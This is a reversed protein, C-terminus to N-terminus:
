KIAGKWLLREDSHPDNVIKCTDNFEMTARTDVNYEPWSPLGKHNPDGHRAFAIWADQINNALEVPPPGKGLWGEALPHAVWNFVFSLELAHYSGMDGTRSEWSFLYMYTKPQAKGQAEAHHIAPIRFLYDTQVSSYIEQPTAKPRNTEYVEFGEDALGPNKAVTAVARERDFDQLGMQKFVMKTWFRYEHKNTGVLLPVDKCDGARLSELIPKILVKDDIVPGFPSIKNSGGRITGQAELIKAVPLERLDELTSTRSVEMFNKAVEAAETIEMEFGLPGSQNVAKHFLGKAGPMAMLAAVAVGGASEGFLTVNDPDGGFHTINEKVWKLAAIQDLFGNNGSSSYNEDLAGLYLFGLVGLRYNITVVVVDGRLVLSSPNTSSGSGNTHGGGHIWVMVPRKANDAKPTYVNLYLCDESQIEPKTRGGLSSAAAEAQPAIGGFSTGDRVGEWSDPAQPPLFRKEGVPPAAFPIGAYYTIGPKTRGKIKGKVTNVNM